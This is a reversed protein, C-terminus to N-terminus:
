LKNNATDKINQWLLEAATDWSFKAAQLKGAEILSSRLPEDKYVNIMHKAIADPDSPDAYLAADGGIEPMSSTDSTIVPVEAQMAEIIPLGFGEFFSPYVLAYAAATIRHLQDEPQYDLLAVDDRYRYTKLKTLVDEYDWALRGAILLKMNSQQWKKFLSFAKLLHMLNKRPHIGGTFLFYERGDAFGEKVEERDFWSLPKFGDRAAGSIVQIKQQPISYQEIIDAKTFESVTVVRKAKRLFRKTFLRYYKRHYWAIFKPFHIFALDHVLLVQPINTALSCFGFPQLWVDIKHARLALPARVNYWYIFALPHRAPPSVIVAKVNSAYVFRADYSRDFIFLFEHEPHQKVMRSLVENAYHGYGELYNKQLFIATVAIRM